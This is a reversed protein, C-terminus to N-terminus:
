NSPDATTITMANFDQLPKEDDDILAANKLAKAYVSLATSSLL